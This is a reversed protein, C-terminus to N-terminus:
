PEAMTRVAAELWATAEADLERGLRYTHRDTRIAVVGQAGTAGEEWVREVSRIAKKPVARSLVLRVGVARSLVIRDGRDRIVQPAVIPVAQSVALLGFLVGIGGMVVQGLMSATAGAGMADVWVVMWVAVAASLVAVIMDGQSYLRPLTIRLGEGDERVVIGRGPPAVGSLPAGSPAGGPLPSGSPGERDM